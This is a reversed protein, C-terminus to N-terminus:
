IKVTRLNKKLDFDNENGDKLRWWLIWSLKIKMRKEMESVNCNRLRYEIKRWKTYTHQKICTIYSSCIISKADIFIITIFKSINRFSSRNIRRILTCDWLSHYVIFNVKEHFFIHLVWRWKLIHRFNWIQEHYSDGEQNTSKRRSWVIIKKGKPFQMRTSIFHKHFTKMMNWDFDVEELEGYVVWLECRIDNASLSIWLSVQKVHITHFFSIFNSKSRTRVRVGQSVNINRQDMWYVDFTAVFDAIVHCHFQIRDAFDLGVTVLKFNGNLPAM